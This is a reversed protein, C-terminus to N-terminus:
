DILVVGSEVVLLLQHIQDGQNSKEGEIVYGLWGTDHFSDEGMTTAIM